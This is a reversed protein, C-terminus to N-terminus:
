RGTGARIIGMALGRLIEKTGPPAYIAILKLPKLPPPITEHFLREPNHILMGAKIARREEHMARYTESLEVMQEDEGSVGYLIEEVGPHNHGKSLELLVVGTTFQNADNHTPTSLWKISGWAFIQPEVDEPPIFHKNASMLQTSM